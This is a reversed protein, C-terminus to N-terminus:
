VGDITKKAARQCEKDGQFLLDRRVTSDLDRLPIGWLDALQQPSDFLHRKLEISRMVPVLAEMGM